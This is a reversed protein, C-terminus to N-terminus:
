CYAYAGYGVVRAKDGATDGSNNRALLQAEWGQSKAFSNLGNIAHCGCAQQPEIDTALRTIASSTRADVERAQEYSLFHSLDSSILVLAGRSQLFGIVAAVQLADGQGVVIPVLTFSDFLMQLFPLQVEICHEDRHVADNYDVGPLQQLGAITDLCLPVPGLPTMFHSHSDLAMGMLPQRHNPGLVAILPHGAPAAGLARYAAAAVVGSYDYGAHPVILGKIAALEPQQSDGLLQALQQRCAPEDQPYFLGAVATPRTSSNM